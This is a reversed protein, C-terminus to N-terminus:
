LKEKIFKVGFAELEKLIPNYFESTVPLMVGKASIEGELILRTAIGAPYGVTAAMATHGADKGTFTMTTSFNEQKGQVDFSFIHKMVVLDADSSDLKWKKEIISQLIQAATANAIGQKEQDDLLGLWVLKDFTESEQSIGLYSALRESVSGNGGPLFSETFALNSLHESGELVVTDDTLGLQVLMDWSSSFGAYRLTGRIFTSVGQLNYLDLYKLSDRNPYGELTGYGAVPVEELRQFLKHYPLYKYGGDEMYKAAPGQGALVVNRPNWSIKYHWPNTDAEPAVLGGTYSKFSVLKGGKAKHEDIEKLASMHDIGPDLGAEMLLVVGNKKAEDDLSRIEESMYSASVFHVGLEVCDRAITYHLRPPLLSVTIDHKQILSRRVEDDMVDISLTEFYVSKPLNAVYPSLLMDAITLKWQKKACLGLLYEILVQSSKGSGFLLIQKM